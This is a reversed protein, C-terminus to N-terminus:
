LLAERIIIFLNHIYIELQANLEYRERLLYGTFKIKMKSSSSVNAQHRINSSINSCLIIFFPFYPLLIFASTHMEIKGRYGASIKCFCISIFAYKKEREGCGLM